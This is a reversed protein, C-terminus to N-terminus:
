TRTQVYAGVYTRVNVPQAGRGATHVYTEEPQLPLASKECSRSTQLFSFRDGWEGHWRCTPNNKKALMLYKRTSNLTALRTNGSGTVLFLAEPISLSLAVGLSIIKIRATYVSWFTRANKKKFCLPYTLKRRTHCNAGSIDPGAVCAAQCEDSTSHCASHRVSKNIRKIKRAPRM